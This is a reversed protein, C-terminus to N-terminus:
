CLGSVNLSSPSTLQGTHLMDNDDLWRNNPTPNFVLDKMAHSYHLSEGGAKALADKFALCSKLKRCHEITKLLYHFHLPFGLVSVLVTDIVCM